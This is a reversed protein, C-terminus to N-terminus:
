LVNLDEIMQTAEIAYIREQPAYKGQNKLQEHTTYDWIRIWHVIM